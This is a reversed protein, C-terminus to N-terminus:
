RSGWYAWTKTMDCIAVGLDFAQKARMDTYFIRSQLGDDVAVLRLFVDYGGDFTAREEDVDKLTKSPGGKIALDEKKGAPLFSPAM